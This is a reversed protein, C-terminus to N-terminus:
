SYLVKFVKVREVSDYAKSLDVLLTMGKENNKCNPIIRSLANNICAM